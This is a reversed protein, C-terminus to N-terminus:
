LLKGAVAAAFIIWGITMNSRFTQQCLESNSLDLNQVQLYLHYAAAAWIIYYYSSLAPTVGGAFAWMIAATQFFYSIMQKSKDGFLLATSKVGILVDDKKDQHAYITDYGITWSVAGIYLLAANLEITNNVAAAGIIIGLNMTFGLFLQPWYTWRKMYPYLAVPILAIASLIQALPKLTLLILLSLILLGALVYLAQRISLAGSALPRNKTREVNKDFKHDAIDNLICGASRMFVSGLAFATLLWISIGNYSTLTIGWWSPLFLLGIGVPKDLRMLQIYPQFKALKKHKSISSIWSFHLFFNELKALTERM